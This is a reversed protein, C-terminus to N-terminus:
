IDGGNIWKYLERVDIESRYNKLKKASLDSLCVSLSCVYLMFVNRATSPM